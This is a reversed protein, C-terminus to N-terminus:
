LLTESYADSGGRLVKEAVTLWENAYRRVAVINVVQHQEVLAEIALIGGILVKSKRFHRTSASAGQM